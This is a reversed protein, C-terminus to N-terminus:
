DVAHREQQLCCLIGQMWLSFGALLVMDVALQGAPLLAEESSHEWWSVGCGRQWRWLAARDICLRTGGDWWPLLPTGEVGQVWFPGGCIKRPLETAM